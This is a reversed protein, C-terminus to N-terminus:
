KGLETWRDSLEIVFAFGGFDRLIRWFIRWFDELFGGFTLLFFLFFDKEELM